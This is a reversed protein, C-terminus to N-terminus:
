ERVKRAETLLSTDFYDALKPDGNILGQERLQNLQQQIGFEGDIKITADASATGLAIRRYMDESQAPVYKQYIAAVEARGRQTGLVQRLWTNTKLYAKMFRLGLEKNRTMRNSYILFAQTANPMVDSAKALVVAAKSEVAMSLFPDIIMAGDIAGNALAPLMDPLPMAVFKVDAKTLGGSSLYKLLIQDLIQGPGTTAVTRGKFNAAKTVESSDYLSKRIVIASPDGGPPNPELSLVEAVITMKVGRAMANFLAAGSTTAAVDVQGTAVAPVIESGSKFFTTEVVIGQEAFFGKEIGAFVQVPIRLVGFKVTDAAKAASASILVALAARFLRMRYM